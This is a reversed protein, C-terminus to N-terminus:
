SQPRVDGGGMKQLLSVSCDSPSSNTFSGTDNVSCDLLFDSDNLVSETSLNAIVALEKLKRASKGRPKGIGMRPDPKLCGEASARLRASQRRESDYLIRKGDKKKVHAKPPLSHVSVKPTSPEVHQDVFPVLELCSNQVSPGSGEHGVDPSLDEVPPPLVSLPTPMLIEPGEYQVVVWSSAEGVHQRKFTPPLESEAKRKPLVLTTFPALCVVPKPIALDSCRKALKPLLENRLQFEQILGMTEDSIYYQPEHALLVIEELVPELVQQEPM